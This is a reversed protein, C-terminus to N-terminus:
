IACKEKKLEKFICCFQFKQFRRDRQNEYNSNFILKSQGNQLDTKIQVKLM